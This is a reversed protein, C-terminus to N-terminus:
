LGLEKKTYDGYVEVIYREIAYNIYMTKDLLSVGFEKEVEICESRLGLDDSIAGILETNYYSYIYEPNEGHEEQYMELLEGLTTEKTVGKLTEDSLCELMMEFYAGAEEYADFGKTMIIVRREPETARKIDIGPFLPPVTFGIHVREDGQTGADGEEETDEIGDIRFEPVAPANVRM